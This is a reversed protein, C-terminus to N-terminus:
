DVLNLQLLPSEIADALETKLAEVFNSHPIDNARLM